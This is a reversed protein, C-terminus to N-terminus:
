SLATEIHHNLAYITAQVRDKVNIKKFIGTICNRITKESLFLKNGIEKNSMGKSIYYLIEKERHSLSEFPNTPISSSNDMFSSTDQVIDFIYKTLSQDIFNGGSYIHRIANILTTGASEKLIYGNVQLHIAEKLTHFDNEVTLLLIKLNPHTLRLQKVVEIGNLIPMNIDLLLIDCSINQILNIAEQGNSGEGVIHIDEYFSLIQKVGEKILPHDDVIIIKIHHSM